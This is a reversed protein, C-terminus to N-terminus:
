ELMKLYFVFIIRERALHHFCAVYIQFIDDAPIRTFDWPMRSSVQIETKLNSDMLQRLAMMARPGGLYTEEGDSARLPVVLAVSEMDCQKSLRYLIEDM